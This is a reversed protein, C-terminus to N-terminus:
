KVVVELVFEGIVLRDRESLTAESTVQKGNLFVGNSSNLDVITAAGNKQLKIICHKKSVKVGDLHLDCVPAVRGIVNDGEKLKLKRGAMAPDPASIVKLQLPM